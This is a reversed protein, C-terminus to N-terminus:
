VTLSDRIYEAVREPPATADICVTDGWVAVNHYGTRVRELYEPSRDEYREMGKGSARIRSQREAEPLVLLFIQWPGLADKYPQLDEMAEQYNFFPVGDGMIQYAYTSPYSRDFVIYDYSDKVPVLRALLELRAVHFLYFQSIPELQEKGLLLSRIMNGVVTDGPERVPLVRKGAKALQNCLERATVTKGAGDPGEIVIVKSM